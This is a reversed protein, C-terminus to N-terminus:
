KACIVLKETTTRRTRCSPSVATSSSRCVTRGRSQATTRLRRGPPQCATSRRGPSRNRHDAAGSVPPQSRARHPPLRSAPFGRHQSTCTKPSASASSSSTAAAHASGTSSRASTTSPAAPAAHESATGATRRLAPPQPQHRRPVPLPNQRRPQPTPRHASARLHRRPDRAAAPRPRQDSRPQAPVDLPPPPLPRHPRRHARRAPLPPSARLM